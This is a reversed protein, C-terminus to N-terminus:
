DIISFEVIPHTNPPLSTSLLIMYLSIVASNPIDVTEHTALSYEVTTHGHKKVIGGVVRTIVRKTNVAFVDIGVTLGQIHVLDKVVYILPILVPWDAYVQSHMELLVQRFWDIKSDPWQMQHKLWVRWLDYKEFAKSILAAEPTGIYLLSDMHFAQLRSFEMKAVNEPSLVAGIDM